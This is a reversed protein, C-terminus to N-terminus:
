VATHVRPYRALNEARVFETVVSGPEGFVMEAVFVADHRIHKDIGAIERPQGPADSDTRGHHRQREGIRHAHGLVGREEVYQAAAAKHEAKTRAVAFVLEIAEADIKFRPAIDLLFRQAIASSACPGGRCANGTRCRRRSRATEGRWGPATDAPTGRRRS